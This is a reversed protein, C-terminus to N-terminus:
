QDRNWGISLWGGESDIQSVHLTGAKELNGPLTVGETKFEPEFLASWKRRMFTKFAIQRAGLQGEINVFDVQVEDQRTLTLGTDTPEISYTASIRMRENLTQDSRTFERGTIALTFQGDRFTATVPNEYDFTISWPDSEDTIQLEPPVEGTQEELIEALREDTLTEGGIATAAFNSVMSEHLRVAMDFIGGLAPPQGPAGLQMDNAQIGQIRIDTATSSVNMQRPFGDRRLLPLRFQDLYKQQPDALRSTTDEDMRQEFRDEARRSAIQEAQGKKQMAQKWAFNEIFRLRASISHIDTQTTCHAISPLLTIGHADLMLRKSVNVQTSGSSRIQINGHYGVTDSDSHGILRIEIMAQETNPRLHGSVIGITEATGSISTGLIHEHIESTDVVEDAISLAILDASIQAYLNPAMYNGRISALLDPVQGARELQGAFIGIQRLREATPDANYAEITAALDGLLVNFQDELQEHSAYFSIDVYHRLAHRVSSFLERELGNENSRYIRWIANLIGLDPGDDKSLATQMDDWRLFRRWVDRNSASGSLLYRDLQNIARDLSERADVVSAPDIPRFQDSAARVADPLEAAPIIDAQPHELRDVLAALSNRVAAFEHCEMGSVGSNYQDLVSQLAAVDAQDGRNLQRDLQDSDLHSHWRAANDNDGLWLRVQNLSEQVDESMSEGLVRVSLSLLLAIILSTAFCRPINM